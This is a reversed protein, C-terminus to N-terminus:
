RTNYLGISAEEETIVVSRAHVSLVGIVCSHTDGTAMSCSKSAEDDRTVVNQHAVGTAKSLKAALLAM